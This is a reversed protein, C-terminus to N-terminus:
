QFSHFSPSIPPTLLPPPLLLLVHRHIRRDVQIPLFIYDFKAWPDLLLLLLV